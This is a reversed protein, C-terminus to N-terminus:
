ADPDRQHVLLYRGPDAAATGVTFGDDGDEVRLKVEEFPDAEEVDVFGLTSTVPEFGDPRCEDLPADPEGLLNMATQIHALAETVGDPAAEASPYADGIALTATLLQYQIQTPRLDERTAM